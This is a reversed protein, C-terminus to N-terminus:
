GGGYYSTMAQAGADISHLMTDIDIKSRMPTSDTITGKTLHTMEVVPWKVKKWNICPHGCIESCRALLLSGTHTLHKHKELDYAFQQDFHLFDEISEEPNGNFVHFIRTATVEKPLMAVFDKPPNQKALLFLQSLIILSFLLSLKMATQQNGDGWYQNITPSSTVLSEAAVSGGMALSQLFRKDNADFAISEINAIATQWVNEFIEENTIATM